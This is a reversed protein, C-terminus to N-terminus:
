RHLDADQQDVLYRVSFVSDGSLIGGRGLIRGSQWNSLGLEPKDLAFQGDVWRTMGNGVFPADSDSWVQQLESPDESVVSVIFKPAYQNFLAIAEQISEVIVLSCEPNNDWEWETALDSHDLMEATISLPITTLLSKAEADIHLV